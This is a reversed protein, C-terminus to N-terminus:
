FLCESCKRRLSGRDFTLGYLLSFVQICNNARGLISISRVIDRSIELTADKLINVLGKMVDDDEEDEEEKNFGRDVTLIRLKPTLFCDGISPFRM